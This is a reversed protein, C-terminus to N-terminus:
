HGSTNRNRVESLYERANRFRREAFDSLSQQMIHPDYDPNESSGCDMGERTEKLCLQLLEDTITEGQARQRILDTLRQGLENGYRQAFLLTETLQYTTNSM